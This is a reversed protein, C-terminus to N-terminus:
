MVGRFYTRKERDMYRCSGDRSGEEGVKIVTVAVERAVEIGVGVM